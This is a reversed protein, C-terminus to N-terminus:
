PRPGWTWTAPDWRQGDGRLVPDLFARAAEYADKLERWPLRSAEALERYPESWRDPAEGLMSPLPHTARHAFTQELAARVAAGEIPGVSALIALDPLDRVRSNPTPRPVSYAHLKEAIHTARPYVAFEPTQVGVFTLDSRGPLRDPAGLIPEGFAVDVGFPDGYVKGALVAQVRYRKGPYKMGIADLDPRRHPEIRFRLYDGRDDTGLARLAGDFHEPAGLARLDIDRTSRARITRLEIAMGGKVVIYMETAAARALFREFIFVQRERVLGRASQHALTSLRQELARRFAEDTKYRPPNV